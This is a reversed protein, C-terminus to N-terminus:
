KWEGFIRFANKQGKGASVRGKESSGTGTFTTSGEGFHDRSLEASM